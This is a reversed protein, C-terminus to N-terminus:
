VETGPAGGKLLKKRESPTIWPAERYLRSLDIDYNVTQLMEFMLSPKDYIYHKALTSKVAHGVLPQIQPEIYGRAHLMNILNSRLSRFDVSADETVHEDIFRSWWNSMAGTYGNVSQRLNPFLLLPKNPDTDQERMSEWYNRFGLALVTPPIPITRRSSLNKTRQGVTGDAKITLCLLGSEADITVDRVLPQCGENLRIGEYLALLPIFLHEPNIRLVPLSDIIKQLEASTFPRIPESGITGEKYGLKKAYSQLLYSKDVLWNFLWSVRELNTDQTRLDLVQHRPAQGIALDFEVEEILELLDRDKLGKYRSFGAPVMALLEKYRIFDELLFDKVDREGALKVFLDLSFRISSVTRKQWEKEHDRMYLDIMEVINGGKAMGNLSTMHVYPPIATGGATAVKELIRDYSNDYNGNLREVEITHFEGNTKLVERCLALYGVEKPNVEEPQYGHEALIARAQHAGDDLRNSTLSFNNITKYMRHLSILVDTVNSTVPGETLRLIEKQELRHNLNNHAYQTALQRTLEAMRAELFHHQVTALWTHLRRRAEPLRRTGLSKKLERRGVLPVLKEPVRIRAYYVGKRLILGQSRQCSAKEAPM